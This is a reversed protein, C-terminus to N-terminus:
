PRTRQDPRVDHNEQQPPQFAAASAQLALPVGNLILSAADVAGCGALALLGAALMARAPTLTTHRQPM